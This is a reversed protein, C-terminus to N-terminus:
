ICPNLILFNFFISFWKCSIFKCLVLTMFSAKFHLCVHITLLDLLIVMSTYRHDSAPRSHFSLWLLLIILIILLHLILLILIILWFVLHLVTFLIISYLHLLIMWFIWKSSISISFTRYSKTVSVSVLIGLFVNVVLGLIVLCLFYRLTWDAWWKM